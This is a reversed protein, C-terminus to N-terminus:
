TTEQNDPRNQTPVIGPPQGIVALFQFQATM